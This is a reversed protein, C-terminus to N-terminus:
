NVIKEVQDPKLWVYVGDEDRLQIEVQNLKGSQRGIKNVYGTKGNHTGSTIKVYDSMKLEKSADFLEKLLM